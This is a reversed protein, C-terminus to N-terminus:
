NQKDEDIEPKLVANVYEDATQRATALTDTEDLVVARARAGDVITMLARATHETDVDHFVDEQIGHDMVTKLMYRVYEDNQQFRKGFAEKYPAQSRMELVAILLDRHDEPAVLLKDLLLNLRQEPDTTEVEHITNVFRELIYDLFAVLLDDKTDYHYHVAATSKGYEDAIRKITLDAYGHEQLVRYTARMIEENSDSSTREPPEAM